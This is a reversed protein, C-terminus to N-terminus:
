GEMIVWYVGAAWDASSFHLNRGWAPPNRDRFDLTQWTSRAGPDPLGAKREAHILVHLSEQLPNPYVHFGHRAIATRRHRCADRSKAPSIASCGNADFVEVAYNGSLTATYTQGNAGSIAIGNFIGNTATAAPATLVNGAQSFGSDRAVRACHYLEAGGPTADQFIRSLDVEGPLHRRQSLLDGDAKSRQPQRIPARSPGTGTPQM